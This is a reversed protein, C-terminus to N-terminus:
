HIVNRGWSSCRLELFAAEQLHWLGICRDGIVGGAEACRENIVSAPQPLKFPPLTLNLTRWEGNENDRNPRGTAGVELGKRVHADVARGM